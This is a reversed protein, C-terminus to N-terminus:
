LVKLDGFKNNQSYGMKVKLSEVAREITYRASDEVKDGFKQLLKAAETKLIEFTQKDCCDEALTNFDSPSEEFTYREDDQIELLPFLIHDIFYKVDELKFEEPTITLYLRLVSLLSTVLDQCGRNQM